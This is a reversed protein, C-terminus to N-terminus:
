EAVHDTIDFGVSRALKLAYEWGFNVKWKAGPELLDGGIVATRLLLRLSCLTALQTYIDMTPTLDHPLVAHLIALIRDLPFPSPSLLHRPIKRNKSERGAIAGGGKRRRKRETAKMFYINDQRAPNFSALYAACLLWKSYYPLDHTVLILNPFSKGDTLETTDEQPEDIVSDLLCSEAQFIKRQAVMLKSFDRTGYTGDVIPQVFPRWLKDLISKFAVIDRAAGSALSDWVAACYRSWLWADDEAALEDSYNASPSLPENFIAQPRVSAIQIAQERTYPSFYIHPAGPLHLLRPHPYTVIMVISLCPILQGLRALTPLLTPPAERQEDIGDLVLVFKDIGEFLREFSSTLTSLSECRSPIVGDLSIDVAQEIANVCAALTRELFHRGTICESCPIFAHKLGSLELYSKLLGTKATSEPGHVVLTGPSILRPQLTNTFVSANSNPTSVSLLASLTKIQLDRCPWQNTLSLVVEDPLMELGM